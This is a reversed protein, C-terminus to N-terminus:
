KEKRKKNEEEEKIQENVTKIYKRIVEAYEEGNEKGFNAM